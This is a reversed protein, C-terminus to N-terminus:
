CQLKTKRKKLTPMLNELFTGKQLYLEITQVLFTVLSFFQYNDFNCENLHSVRIKKITKTSLFHQINVKLTPYLKEYSVSYLILGPMIKGCM